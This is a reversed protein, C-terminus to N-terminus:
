WEFGEALLKIRTTPKYHYFDTILGMGLEAIGPVVTRLFQVQNMERPKLEFGRSLAFAKIASADEINRGGLLVWDLGVVGDEMSYQLNVHERDVSDLPIFMLVAYRPDGTGLCLKEIISPIQSAIVRPWSREMPAPRVKTGNEPEDPAVYDLDKVIVMDGDDFLMKILGGGIPAYSGERGDESKFRKIEIAM